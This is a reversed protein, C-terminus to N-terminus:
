AHGAAGFAREAWRELSTPATNRPGPAEMAWREGNNFSRATEILADAFSASIGNEIMGARVNSYPAAQYAVQRGLARGLIEVESTVGVVVITRQGGTSRELRTM